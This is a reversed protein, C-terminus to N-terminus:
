GYHFSDRRLQKVSRRLVRSYASVRRGAFGSSRPASVRPLVPAARAELLRAAVGGGQALLMVERAVSTAEENSWAVVHEGDTVSPGEPLHLDSLRLGMLEVTAAESDRRCGNLVDALVAGNM